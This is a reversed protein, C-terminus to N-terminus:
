PTKRSPSPSRGPPALPAPAASTTPALAGDRVRTGDLILSHFSYEGPEVKVRLPSPTGTSRRFDPDVLLWGEKNSAMTFRVQVSQGPAVIRRENGIVSFSTESSQCKTEDTWPPPQWTPSSVLYLCVQVPRAQGSPTPNVQSTAFLTVQVLRDKRVARLGEAPASVSGCGALLTCLLLSALWRLGTVASVTNTRHM